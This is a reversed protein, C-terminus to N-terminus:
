KKENNSINKLEKEAEEKGWEPYYEAQPKFAKFKELSKELVPKAKKSGGGFVEPTYLLARGKLLYGRPNAENLKIAANAHKTALGGYKQGRKKENVLIRAAALMSKLVEIESNAPSLSDALKALKDGKGCIADAETKSAEFAVLAHCLGAYYYALWEKKESLALTEFGPAIKAFESKSKAANFQTVYKKLGTKYAQSQGFAVSVSLCVFIVAYIVQKFFVKM